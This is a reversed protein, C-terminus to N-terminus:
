ALKMWLHHMLPLSIQSIIWLYPAVKTKYFVNSIFNCTPWQKFPCTNIPTIVHCDLIIAHLVEEISQSFVNFLNLAFLTTWSWIQYHLLYSSCQENAECWILWTEWFKTNWFKQFMHNLDCVVKCPFVHSKIMFFMSFYTNWRSFIDKHVICTCM